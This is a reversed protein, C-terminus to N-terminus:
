QEDIYALIFNDDEPVIYYDKNEVTLKNLGWVTFGIIDGTKITKVDSGVAEVKGYECLSPNEEVVVQSRIMPQVLINKGFTKTIKM